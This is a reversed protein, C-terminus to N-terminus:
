PRRAPSRTTPGTLGDRGGRLRRRAQRHDRRHRPLLEHQRQPAEAEARGKTVLPIASAIGGTGTSTGVGAGTRRFWTELTFNSAGLSPAAGFTVYQNTGNFQLAAGAAATPTAAVDSSAASANGSSDVAVVVYHYTTGNLATADTYSPATLLTAGNLPTGTTPM